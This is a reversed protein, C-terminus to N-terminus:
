KLELLLSIQSVRGNKIKNPHELVAGGTGTADKVM